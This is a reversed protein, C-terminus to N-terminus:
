FCYQYTCLRQNPTLRVLFVGLAQMLYESKVHLAQPMNATESKHEAELTYSAQHSDFSVKM